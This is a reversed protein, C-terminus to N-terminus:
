YTFILIVALIIRYVGFWKLGLKQTFKLMFKIAIIGSIFSSIFGIAAHFINLSTPTNTAIEFVGYSFALFIIPIGLIFSLDISTQMDLKNLRGTIITIGSRSTGKLFALTQSIGVLFFTRTPLSELATPKIQNNKPTDSLIMPIAVLILMTSILHISKPSQVFTIFIGGALLAPLTALIINKVLKKNKIIQKIKPFYTFLLALLTGGHVTIDFLGNQEEWGLLEPIIVLHASSSIPLFETIGQIIGLIVAQLM